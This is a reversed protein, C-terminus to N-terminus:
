LALLVLSFCPPRWAEYGPAWHDRRARSRRRALRRLVRYSRSRAPKNTSYHWSFSLFVPLVGHRMGQHGTIADLVRVDVPSVACFETRDLDHRNIQAIIGLSRSFFLSSAM